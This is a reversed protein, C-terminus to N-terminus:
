NLSEIERIEVSTGKGFLIPCKEAIESAEKIDKAQIILYGAISEKSKVYPGASLKGGPKLVMGKQSLHNGSLLKNKDIIGEVWENWQEMYVKMQKKTPQAEKSLIDMRFFLIFNKM